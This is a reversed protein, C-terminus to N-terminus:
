VFSSACNRAFFLTRGTSRMMPTSVPPQRVGRDALISRHVELGDVLHHLPERVDLKEKDLAAPSLREAVNLGSSTSAVIKTISTASPSLIGRFPPGPMVRDSRRTMLLISRAGYTPALRSTMSCSEFFHTALTRKQEGVDAAVDM